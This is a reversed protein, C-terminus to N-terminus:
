LVIGNLNIDLREHLVYACSPCFIELIQMFFVIFSQHFIDFYIKLFVSEM